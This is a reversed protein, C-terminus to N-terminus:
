RRAGESEVTAVLDLEAPQFEDVHQLVLAMRERFEPSGKWGHASSADAWVGHSVFRSPDAVDRGLRLIDAGPHTGAWRAFETWARVFDTERGATVHWTGTTMMLATM